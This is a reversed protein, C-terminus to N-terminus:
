FAPKRQFLANVVKILDESAAKRVNASGDNELKEVEKELRQVQAIVAQKKKEYEDHLKEQAVKFKDLACEAEKKATALKGLVEAEKKAKAKKTFGFLSTKMAKAEELDEELHHVTHTLNQIEANNEPGVDRTQAAYEADLEVLLHNKDALEKVAQNLTDEEHKIETLEQEIKAIVRERDKVFTEDANVAPNSEFESLVTKLNILWDDFYQSFPSIAFKQEGLRKLSNLTKQTIEEATAIQKEELVLNIGHPKRTKTKKKEHQSKQFKQGGKRSSTRYGM